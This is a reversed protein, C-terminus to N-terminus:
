TCREGTELSLSAWPSRAALAEPRTFAGRAVARFHGHKKTRAPRADPAHLVPPADHAPATLETELLVFAKGPVRPSVSGRLAGSPTARPAPM